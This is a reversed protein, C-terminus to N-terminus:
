RRTNEQWEELIKTAPRCQKTSNQARTKEMNNTKNQFYSNDRAWDLVTRGDEDRITKDAGYDLLLRLKALVDRSSIVAHHLVTDGHSNQLNLLAPHKYTLLSEMSKVTGYHAQYMLATTNGYRSHRINIDSITGKDLMKLSERIDTDNKVFRNINATSDISDKSDKDKTHTFM